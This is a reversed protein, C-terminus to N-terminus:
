FSMFVLNQACFMMVIEEKATKVSISPAVIFGQDSLSVVGSPPFITRDELGFSVLGPEDARFEILSSQSQYFQIHSGTRVERQFWFYM